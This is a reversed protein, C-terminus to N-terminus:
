KLEKYKEKLKQEVDEDEKHYLDGALFCNGIIQCLRLYPYRKWIKRILDLIRDIRKPDRM